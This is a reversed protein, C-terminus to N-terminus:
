KLAGRCESPSSGLQICRVLADDRKALYGCWSFISASIFGFCVAVWIAVGMRAIWTRDGDLRIFTPAYASPDIVPSAQIPTGVRPDSQWVSESTTVPTRDSRTIEYSVNGSREISRLTKASAHM